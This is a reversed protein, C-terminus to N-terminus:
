RETIGVYYLGLVFTNCGPYSTYYNNSIVIKKRCIFYQYVVSIGIKIFRNEFYQVHFLRKLHQFDLM